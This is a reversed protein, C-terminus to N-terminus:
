WLQNKIGEQKRQSIFGCELNLHFLQSLVKNKKGFLDIKVIPKKFSFFKTEFVLIIKRAYKCSLMKANSDTKHIFYM